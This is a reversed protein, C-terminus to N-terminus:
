KYLKKQVSYKIVYLNTIINMANDTMHKEKWQKRNRQRAEAIHKPDLNKLYRCFPLM